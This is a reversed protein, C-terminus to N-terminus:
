ECETKLIKKPSSSCHVASHTYKTTTTIATTTENANPCERRRSGVPVALEYHGNPFHFHSFSPSPSSPLSFHLCEFNIVVVLAVVVIFRLWQQIRHQGVFSSSTIASRALAPNGQSGQSQGAQRDLLFVGGEDQRSRKWLVFQRPVRHKQSKQLFNQSHM